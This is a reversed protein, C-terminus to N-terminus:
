MGSGASQVQSAIATMRERAATVAEIVRIIAQKATGSEDIAQQLMGQIEHNAPLDGIIGSAANRIAELGAMVQDFKDDAEHVASDVGAMDSGSVLSSLQGAKEFLSM